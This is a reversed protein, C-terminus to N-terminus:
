KLASSEDCVVGAFDERDFLHLREYNTVTIAAPVSGDRSVAAEIGFKAAEGETQFTVGLPALLLM